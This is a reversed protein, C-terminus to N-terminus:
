NLPKGIHFFMKITFEIHSHTKRSLFCSQEKYTPGEVEFEESINICADVRKKIVDKSYSDDCHFNLTVHSGPSFDLAKECWKEYFFSFIYQYLM